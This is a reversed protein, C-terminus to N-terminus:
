KKVVEFNLESQLKSSLEYVATKNTSRCTVSFYLAGESIVEVDFLFKKTFREGKINERYLTQGRNDSIVVTFDNQNADGEIKLMVLPREEINGIHVLEAPVLNNKEKVPNGTAAASLSFVTIFAMAIIKGNKM